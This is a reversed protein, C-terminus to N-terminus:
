GKQLTPSFVSWSRPGHTSHLNQDEGPVRVKIDQNLTLEEQLIIQPPERRSVYVGAPACLLLVLKCTLYFWDQNKKSRSSTTQGSQGETETGQTRPQRSHQAPASERPALM